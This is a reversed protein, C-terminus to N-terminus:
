ARRRRLGAALALSLAGFFAAYASPEPIQEFWLVGDTEIHHLWNATDYGTVAVNGVSGTEFGDLIQYKEAYDIYGSLEVIGGDLYFDNTGDGFIQDYSAASLITLKYVGATMSFDGGSLTYSGAGDGNASLEGGSLSIGGTVVNVVSSDLIGGSNVSAASTGLANQNAAILTGANVDMGGSFINAATLELVGSGTKEIKGAGKIVSDIRATKGNTDIKAGKASINVDVLSVFAGSGDHNANVRLTGGDVTFVAEAGTSLITGNGATIINADLIGGENVTLTGKSYNGRALLIRQNAVFTGGDNVVIGGVGRNASDTGTEHGVAATGDLTFTGGNVTIYGQSGHNKANNSWAGMFLNGAVHVDGSAMTLEASGGNDGLLMLGIVDLTGANVNIYAKANLNCGAWIGYEGSTPTGNVTFRGGNINLTASIDNPTYNVDNYGLRLVRGISMESQDNLEVLASASNGIYTYFSNNVIKSRDNLSIRGAGGSAFGVYINSSKVTLESDGYMELAGGGAANSSLQIGEVLISDSGELIAKGDSIYVLSDESSPVEGNEWNASDTWLGEVGSKWSYSEASLASFAAIIAASAFLKTEM